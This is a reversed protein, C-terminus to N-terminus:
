PTPEQPPVIVVVDEDTDPAPPEPIQYVLALAAVFASIATVLELQSVVRDDFAPVLASVFAGAAGIFSKIAGGYVGPVNDVFAVLAGSALITGLAILWTQTDIDGVDTKGTLAVTLAGLIAMILAIIAKIWGQNGISM